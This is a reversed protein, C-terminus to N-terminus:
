EKVEFQGCWAYPNTISWVVDPSCDGCSDTNKPFPANRRCYGFDNDEATGDNDESAERWKCDECKM